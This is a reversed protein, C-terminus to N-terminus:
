PIRRVISCQRRQRLMRDRTGRPSSPDPPAPLPGPVDSSAAIEPTLCPLSREARPRRAPMGDCNLLASAQPRAERDSLGAASDTSRFSSVAGRRSSECWGTRCAVGRRVSPLTPAGQAPGPRYRREMVWGRIAAWGGLLPCGGSCRVGAARAFVLAAIRRRLVALLRSRAIQSPRVARSDGIASVSAGATGM